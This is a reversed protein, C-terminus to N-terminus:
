SSNGGHGRCAAEYVVIQGKAMGAETCVEEIHQKFERRFKRATDCNDTMLVGGKALKKVSLKQSLLLQDLLDQRGPYMDSTVKRWDDLHERGEQYAQKIATVCTTAKGDEPLICSDLTICRYGADCAIRVICNEIKTQRRDTGDSHQQKYIPARAVQYAALTKTTVSLVGRTDRMLKVCPTNKVLNLNPQFASTTAMISAPIVSPPVRLALLEIFLQTAWGPWVM